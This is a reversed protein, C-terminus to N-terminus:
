KLDLLIPNAIHVILGPRETMNDVIKSGNSSVVELDLCQIMAALVAAGRTSIRLPKPNRSISWVNVALRTEALINHVGIVCDQTSELIMPAPLHLRLAEKFIARLNLLYPLDSEDVLRVNRGVVPDIEKRAKLLMNPHNILEGLAWETSGASTDTGVTMM